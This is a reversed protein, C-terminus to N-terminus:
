GLWIIFDIESDIKKAAALASMVLDNPTGCDFDGYKRIARTSSSNRSVNRCFFAPDGDERYFIDIHSDTFVWFQGLWILIM